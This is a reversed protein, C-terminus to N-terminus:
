QFNIDQVIDDFEEEVASARHSITSYTPNVNVTINGISCSAFGGFMGGLDNSHEPVPQAHGVAAATPQAPMLLKSVERHQDASVREYCRLAQLSRHGTVKQIVRESVNAQFMSTAGTARLSHNSKEEIGADLCMRKVMTALSNKGVAVCEYWPESDSAPVSSKPRLYFIDQEFAYKPLRRFYQDLLFVICQPNNEPVAVCPVTKNEVSLQKLGGSHNKSGHEVYTYCDPNSSRVFMSPRLQRQEEGGRICFRKGVYFFVARQLSLPTTIGIVGTSWLKQEEAESIVAAHRVRAGVGQQHLSRYVSDCSRHIDRFVPNKTDLFKPALPNNELMHRQLGALLQHITKPPYPEGDQRRVEAVFRPIWFNLSDADPSVLLNPDCVADTCKKNRACRWEEFVRLAWTTNKATNPPVYGKTIDAVEDGTKPKAFREDVTLKAKSLKAKKKPPQFDPDYNEKEM